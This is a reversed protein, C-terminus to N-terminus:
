NMRDLELMVVGIPKLAFSLVQGEAKTFGEGMILKANTFDERLAVTEKLEDRTRNVALLYLKSGKRWTRM